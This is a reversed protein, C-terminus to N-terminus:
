KPDSGDGSNEFKRYFKGHWPRIKVTKVDSSTGESLLLTDGPQLKDAAEQLSQGPEVTVTDAFVPNAALLLGVIALSSLSKMYPKKNTM